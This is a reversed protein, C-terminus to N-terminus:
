EPTPVPVPMRALLADFVAPHIPRLFEVGTITGDGWCVRSGLPELEPLRAILPDGLQCPEIMEVRCGGSSIDKLSVQFNFGGIRRVVIESPVSVRSFRRREEDTGDAKGDRAIAPGPEGRLYAQVNPSVPKESGARARGRIRLLRREPVQTTM